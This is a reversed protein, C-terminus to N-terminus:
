APALRISRPTLALHARAPRHPRAAPATRGRDGCRGVRGEEAERLVTGCAKAFSAGKEAAYFYAM